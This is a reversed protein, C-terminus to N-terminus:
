GSAQPRFVQGTILDIIESPGTQGGLAGPIIFDVEAAFQETVERATLAAPDGSRNASTSVMPGGLMRCLSQVVPHSSVRLAVTTHAGRIFVPSIGQDPVLFTVPGPWSQSLREIHAQSLNDLYPAFQDMSAAVLILGQDVSRQKIRLIRQVAQESDPSCGFGWVGETPYAIVAGALFTQRDCADTQSRNL